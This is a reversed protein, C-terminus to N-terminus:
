APQFSQRMEAMLPPYEVIAERVAEGVGRSDIASVNIVIPASRLNGRYDYSLSGGYVDSSYDVGSPANYRQSDILASERAAYKKKPDGFFLTSVGAALGIGALALVGAPGLAAALPAYAGALGALGGAVAGTTGLAKVATNNSQMSTYAGIAAGAIAGAGMLTKGLSGRSAPKYGPINIPSLDIGTLGRGNAVSALQGGGAGGGLGSIQPLGLFGDFAASIGGGGVGRNAAALQISAARLQMEAATLQKADAGFWTGATLRGLKSDPNDTLSLAGKGLKDGLLGYANQFITRGQGLLLGAGYQRLGGRGSTIADFVSGATQREERRRAAAAEAIRTEFDLRAEAADLDTKAAAMRLDYIARAMALEGGPGASLALIRERTRLEAQAIKEGEESTGTYRGPMMAAGAGSGALTRLPLALADGRGLMANRNATAVELLSGPQFSTQYRGAIDSGLFPVFTNTQGATGLARRTEPDLNALYIQRELQKIRALLAAANFAGGSALQERAAALAQEPQAQYRLYASMDGSSPALNSFSYIGTYQRTRLPVSQLVDDRTAPVPSAFRSGPLSPGVSLPARERLFDAAAAIRVTVGQALEARFARWDQGVEALTGAFIDMDRKLRGVSARTKDDLADALEKSRAINREFAPSLLNLAAATDTGFLKSAQRTREFADDIERLRRSYGALDDISARGAISSVDQGQIRSLSSVASAQRFSQGSAVAVGADAQVQGARRYATSLAAEIAIGAGIVPITTSLSGAVAARAVRLVRYTDVTRQVANNHEAYQRTLAVLGQGVEAFAKGSLYVSAAVETFRIALKSVKEAHKEAANAIDEARRQYEDLRKNLKEIDESGRVQNEVVLGFRDVAM